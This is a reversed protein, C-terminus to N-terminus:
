IGTGKLQVHQPSGGGNDAISVSASRVGTASPTFTV